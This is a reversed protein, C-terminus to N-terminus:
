EPVTYDIEIADLTPAEWGDSALVIRYQLVEGAPRPLAGDDLPVWPAEALEAESAATRIAITRTAGGLEGRARVELIRLAGPTALVSSVYTVVPAFPMAPGGHGTIALYVFDVAPNPPGGPVQDTLRLRWPTRGPTASGALTADAELVGVSFGNGFDVPALPVSATGTDLVVEYDAPTASKLFYLADVADVVAGPPSALPLLVDTVAPADGLAVDTADAMAEVLGSDIVPRLRETPVPLPASGGPPIMTLTIGVDHPDPQQNTGQDASLDVAIAHWGTALELTATDPLAAPNASVIAVPRRDVWLRTTDRRQAPTAALTWTGATDIFIQGVFRLSFTTSLGLDFPPPQRGFSAAVSAVVSSAAVPAFHGRFQFGRVVLGRDDAVKARLQTAPIEAGDLTVVLRANGGIEAIAARIPYWGDRPVVLMTTTAGGGAVDFVTNGFGEGLDLEVIGTDDADVALVHEGEALQLEGEFVVTFNDSATLHLGLPRAGVWNAFVQQYATGRAQSSGAIAAELEPWTTFVLREEFGRARLGGLVFAHPEIVGPEVVRGEDLLEASALEEASDEVLTVRQEGPLLEGGPPTYTCGALAALVVVRM